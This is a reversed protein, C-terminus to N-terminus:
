AIVSGLHRCVDGEPRVTSILAAKNHVSVSQFLEGEFDATITM